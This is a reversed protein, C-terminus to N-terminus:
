QKRSAASSLVLSPGVKDGSLFPEGKHTFSYQIHHYLCKNLNLDGGSSWLINNWLHGDHKMQSIFEDQSPQPHKGFANVQGSSDDVFGIMYLRMSLKCNPSEFLNGKAKSEFTDFLV